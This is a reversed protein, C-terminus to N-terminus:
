FDSLMARAKDAPASSKPAISIAERLLSKAESDDGAKIAKKAKKVLKAATKELSRYIAAVADRENYRSADDAARKAKTYKKQAMYSGAAKPAVSGIRIRILDAHMGGVSKDKKLAKKLASLAATANKGSGTALLNGVQRYKDALELLDDQESESFRDAANDLKNAAESFKKKKYLARAAAKVGATSPAKVVPDKPPRRNNLNKPPRPRTIAVKPKEKPPTKVVAPPTPTEPIVEPPIEPTEPIVEAPTAVAPLSAIFSEDNGWTSVPVGSNKAFLSDMSVGADSVPGGADPGATTPSTTTAVAPKAEDPTKPSGEGADTKSAAQSNDAVTDSADTQLAIAVVIGVAVLVLALSIVIIPGKGRKNEPKAYRSRLDPGGMMPRQGMPHNARSDYPASPHGPVNAMPIPGSGQMPMPAGAMPMPGSGQMTNPWPQPNMTASRQPMPSGSPMPGRQSPMTRAMNHAPGPLQAQGPGPMPPRPMMQQGPLPQSTQRKIDSSSMGLMTSAPQKKGGKAVPLASPPSPPSAPAQKIPAPVPLATHMSIIEPEPTAIISEIADIAANQSNNADFGSPARGNGNPNLVEPSIQVSPVVNTLEDCMLDDISNDTESSLGKGAITSADEKHQDSRKDRDWTNTSLMEDQAEPGEFLIETKGITFTDGNVILIEGDRDRGNIFTGNGSSLDCVFYINDRREVVVHKRSVSIDTLVIDNDVGRGITTKGQPLGVRRGRDKGSKVFLFGRLPDDDPASALNLRDAIKRLAEEPRPDNDEVTFEDLSEQLDVKERSKGLPVMRKTSPSDLPPTTQDLLPNPPSLTERRVVHARGQEIMADQLEQPAVATKDDFPDFNSM